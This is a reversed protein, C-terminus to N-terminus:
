NGTDLMSFFMLMSLFMNSINTILYALIQGFKMKIKSLIWFFYSFTYNGYVASDIIVDCIKFNKSEVFACFDLYRLFSNNKRWIFANM